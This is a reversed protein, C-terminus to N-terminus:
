LGTGGSLTVVTTLFAMLEPCAAAAIALDQGQLIATGDLTKRYARRKGTRFAEQTV